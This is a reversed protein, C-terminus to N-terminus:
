LSQEGESEPVGMIARYLEPNEASLDKQHDGPECQPTIHPQVLAWATDHKILHAPNGQQECDCCDQCTGLEISCWRDDTLECWKCMLLELPKVEVNDLQPLGLGARSLQYANTWVESRTRPELDFASMGVRDLAQDIEDVVAYATMILETDKDTPELPDSALDAEDIGTYESFFRILTRTMEAQGIQAQKQAQEVEAQSITFSDSPKPNDLKKPKPM